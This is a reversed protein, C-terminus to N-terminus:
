LHNFIDSEPSTQTDLRNDGGFGTHGIGDVLIISGTIGKFNLFEDFINLQSILAPHIDNIFLFNSFARVVIYGFHLLGTVLSGNDGQDVLCKNIGNLLPGAINM